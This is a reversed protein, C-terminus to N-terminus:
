VSGWWHGRRAMSRHIPTREMWGPRWSHQEEQVIHHEWDHPGTVLQRRCIGQPGLRLASVSRSSDVSGCMQLYRGERGGHGLDGIM